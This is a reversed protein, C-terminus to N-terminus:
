CPAAVVGVREAYNLWATKLRQVTEPQTTALDHIEDRDHAVDFLQWHAPLANAGFGAQPRMGLLKLNGERYPSSCVKTPSNM